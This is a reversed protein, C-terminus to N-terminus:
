GTAPRLAEPAVPSTGWVETRFNQIGARMLDHVLEGHVYSQLFHQLLADSEFEIHVMVQPSSHTPSRYARFERVGPQQLVIPIAEQGVLRYEEKGRKDAPMDWTHVLLAM